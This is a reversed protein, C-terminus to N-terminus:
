PKVTHRLISWVSRGLSECWRYDGDWDAAPEKLFREFKNVQADMNDAFHLICAEITAPEVPSGWEKTGHHSVILHQMYLAMRQGLVRQRLKGQQAAMWLSRRCAM